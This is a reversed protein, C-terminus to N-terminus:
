ALASPPRLEGPQDVDGLRGHAPILHPVSLHACLAGPALDLLLQTREEGVLPLHVLLPLCHLQDIVRRRHRARRRIVVALLLLHLSLLHLHVAVVLRRHVHRSQALLRLRPALLVAESRPRLEALQNALRLRDHAPPLQLGLRDALRGPGPHLPLQAREEGADVGVVILLALLAVLALLALLALLPLVLARRGIRVVQALLRSRPALLRARSPPRPEALLNAHDRPGDALPLILFGPLATRAPDLLLQAVEEGVLGLHVILLLLLLLLLTRLLVLVHRRQALLRLRPALLAALDRAFTRPLLEAPQDILRLGDDAFPLRPVLRTALRDLAPHLLLQSREEAADLVLVVLVVFVLQHLHLDLHDILHLHLAELADLRRVNVSRLRIQGGVHRAQALLRLRPALLLAM